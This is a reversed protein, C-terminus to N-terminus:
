GIIYNVSRHGAALVTAACPPQSYGKLKVKRKSAQCLVQILIFSIVTLILCPLLKIIVSHVWFNFRYLPNDNHSKTKNQTLIEKGTCRQVKWPMSTISSRNRTTTM